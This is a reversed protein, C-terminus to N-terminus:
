ASVLSAVIPHQVELGETVFSSTVACGTGAGDVAGVGSVVGIM